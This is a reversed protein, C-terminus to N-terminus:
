RTVEEGCCGAESRTENEPGLVQVQHQAPPVSVLISVARSAAIEEHDGGIGADGPLQHHLRVDRVYDVFSLDELMDVVEARRVTGQLSPHAERSFAWPALFRSIAEQLRSTMFSEDVGDRFRVALDVQVPEFRPNRVHLRVFPSTRRALFRQIRELLHLSTLPRMPDRPDTGALEPVTVVTVHGPALEDYIGEDREGPEYRTHNLCRALHIEPFEELLLREHDWLTIGRDRHRLREAARTSFALPDEAPRGGFAPFPQDLSAVAPDAVVLASVPGHSTAGDPPLVATAPVAQATVALLECVAESASTVALRLWHLGAPMLTHETTADAPVALTLIGSSILGDTGDDIAAAPLPIWQDGRLYDIHVHDEPKRTLPDASGELVQLLVTLNQPTRLGAVGLLLAGALPADRGQEEVGRLPVLLPQARDAALPVEAHGFPALHFLRPAATTRGTADLMSGPVTGVQTIATYDLTLGELMPVVPPDPTKEPDAGAAIWSAMQAAYDTTPSLPSLRLRLFGARAGTSFHRAPTDAPLGSVAPDLDDLVIEADPDADPAAGIGFTGDLPEWAGAILADASVQAGSPPPVRWRPHLRLQTLPKTFAEAAGITLASGTGPLPGFPPFPTSGDVPGLDSSLQLTRLGEVTVSLRMGTLRQAALADYASPHQEHGEPQDILILLVPQDTDLDRGHVAADFPTIAPDAGSLRVVLDHGARLSTRRSSAVKGGFQTDAPEVSDPHKATVELWGDEITLLCRLHGDDLLHAPATTTSLHLAITRDGQALRLEQAAVALGIEARPSTIRQLAGDVVETSVFPHWPGEVETRRAAFVRGRDGTLAGDSPHRYLSLLEVVQARNLVLDRDTTFRAERGTEDTGARLATGAPLLHSATHKAPELVIHARDPAAPREALRLVRRYHFLLHQAALSNAEDRSHQLLDIVALLLAMHPPHSDQELSARLEQEAEGVVRALAALFVDTVSRFAHHSALHNLLAATDDPAIAPVGYAAVHAAADVTAFQSWDTAGIGFPWEPARLGDAVITALPQVDRGLVQRGAPGAVPAAPLVGLEIGAAHWGLLRHLAPSLRTRILTAIADHLSGEAPLEQNLQDLGAALTGLLDLVGRLAATMDAPVRPLPPDELRQLLDRLQRRLGDVDEVSVVALRVAPDTLLFPEWSGDAGGDSGIFRLQRALAAALVLDDARGRSDIPVAAPDLAAPRRDGQRAGPRSDQLPDLHERGGGCLRTM